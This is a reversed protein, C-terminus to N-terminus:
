IINPFFFLMFLLFIVYIFIVYVCAVHLQRYYLVCPKLPQYDSVITCTGSGPRLHKRDEIEILQKTIRERM